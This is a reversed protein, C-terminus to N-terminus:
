MRSKRRKYAKVGYFLLMAVLFEAIPIVITASLPDNSYFNEFGFRFAYFSFIIFLACGFGYILINGIKNKDEMSERVFPFILFVKICCNYFFDEKNNLLHFPTNQFSVSKKRFFKGCENPNM